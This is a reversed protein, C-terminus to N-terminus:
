KEGLKSKVREAITNLNVDAKVIYDAGGVAEMAKGIHEPDNLNTLFLIQGTLGAARIAKAMDIGNMKPMMIDIMILDPNEKKALELGAEGDEAYSVSFQQGEFSQRLM